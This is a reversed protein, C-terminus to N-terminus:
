RYQNDIVLSDYAPEETVIDGILKPTTLVHPWKVEFVHGKEYDTELLMDTIKDEIEEQITRIVPRAGYEKEIKVIKLIYDVTYNDYTLSYGISELRSNLKGIEIKIIKKLNEDTLNNFYIVNTIRNIFEPPFKNKLEKILIRKSNKDEDTGFGIGKGFDSAAKTGVNSTFLVIVNRFDVKMGANDTLFGEDLVQLFINYVEPDAKEIEDLLLVCYKKNKVAETLLGGDEYGVYGPNSGILKNVATKEHYESMDFRILADETGFMEKALKKAILTKGVGTKGILMASYLCKGSSLGIRNRKLAKCITDIAEDQGIVEEKLRDNIHVLRKKDDSTLKNVPINTKKSILELIVDEDIIRPNKVKDEKDNKIMDNIQANLSSQIEQLEDVRKYNESEKEKEIQKDINKIQKKIRIVENNVDSSTGVISGAEDMVDIASDPLNRESIYRNSLNVCAEIAADTYQVNHFDEYYHKVGQVIDLSEDLSPADVIIKQFKRLLSPNKEFTKRFSKYDSTGIVQVDGTELSHSLMSSIDYDSRDQNSLAHGINDIFLIYNGSNKIENLLGKVREEFMGRLTTGAMLATMDLSVVIKNLLFYPVEENVIKTALNEAINTKGIGESGVLIANNKRRRGLIRIIEETEKERGVIQDLKEDEAMENLNICYADINPTKSNPNTNNAPRFQPPLNMDGDGNNVMRIVDEPRLKGTILGQMIEEGNPLKSLDIAMGGMIPKVIDNNNNNQEQNDEEKSNGEKVTKLFTDYDVHKANLIKKIRNEPVDDALIALIVHETTISNEGLKEREKDANELYATLKEDYKQKRSPKVVTLAKTSLYNTISATIAEITIQPIHKSISKYALCNENEMVSLFFYEPTIVITPLEDRAISNEMKDVVQNLELSFLDTNIM